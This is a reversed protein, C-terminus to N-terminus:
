DQLLRQGMVSVCVAAFFWSSGPTRLSVRVAGAGGCGGCCVDNQLKGNNYITIIQKMTNRKSQLRGCESCINHSCFVQVKDVSSWICKQWRKTAAWSSNSAM